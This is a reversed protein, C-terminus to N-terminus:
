PWNSSTAHWLTALVLAGALMFEGMLLAGIVLVVGVLNGGLRNRNGMTM